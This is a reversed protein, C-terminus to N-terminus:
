ATEPSTDDKREDKPRMRNIQAPNYPQRIQEYNMGEFGEYNKRGSSAHSVHNIDREGGQKNRAEQSM